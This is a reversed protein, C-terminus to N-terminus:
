RKRFELRSLWLNRDGEPGYLDNVFGITLEHQGAPLQAKLDHPASTSSALEVRGLPKGDLAVEIIPYQGAAPTGHGVFSLVYDGAQAIQVPAAVTGHCGIYLADPDHRFWQIPKVPEFVNADFMTVPGAEGFDAGANALLTAILRALKAANRKATEGSEDLTDVILRGKGAEAVAIAGPETLLTFSGGPAVASKILDHARPVASYSVGRHEALWYLDERALGAAIAPLDDARRLPGQAWKLSAKLGFVGAVSELTKGSPRHLWITAGADAAARLQDATIRSIADGDAVIIRSTASPAQEALRADTRRLWPRLSAAGDALYTVEVAEGKYDGLYDLCNQLIRRAVPETDFKEILQLGCLLLAGKGRRAECLPATALGQANGAVVIPRVGARADWVPEAATVVHHGSAREVLGAKRSARKGKRVPATLDEVLVDSARGDGRWFKLDDDAVGRLAPHRPNQAFTMTSTQTSFSTPLMRSGSQGQGFVLARGGDRVWRLLADRRPSSEGIVPVGNTGALADLAGPAVILVRVDSAEALDTVIRLGALPKPCPKGGTLVAVNAAPKLGARPWFSIARRDEFGDAGAMSTKLILTADTRATVEPATFAFTRTVRDDPKMALSARHGAIRKGNAEISWEFTVTGTRLTNNFLTVTREVRDGAFFRADAERLYAGLPHYAWAHARWLHNSEGLPGGEFMTWPGIGNLGQARYAVIQDRWSAAKGRNRYDGHNIYADDGFWLTHWDPNNSPEWLFEGIYLPKARDWQFVNTPWFFHHIRAHDLWWATDPYLRFQPYEHPYHMGIVDAVGTTDTANLRPDGDSEYIIPRTPDLQKLFVGARAMESEGRTGATCRGGYFENELSWMVVSPNNKLRRWMVALHDRYNQWFREDDVRYSERDNWIAGEPIILLGVEDAVDYFVQRWPQTHTRLAVNNAEKVKQWLATVEDHTRARVPWAPWTATARLTIPVGNLFFRGREVRFERFGFRTRLTDATAGAVDLGSQLHYLNPHEHDWLKPNRWTASVTLNTRLGAALTLEVPKLVVSADEAIANRLTVRAEAASDNALEVDLTLKHDRVSTIITVDNVRVPQVALVTVDDWIGYETFLGGIPGLVNDRPWSRLAHWDTNTPDPLQKDFIGSWDRAGVLLTNPAGFKVADTADVTFMDYGNFCGGVRRGNVFVAANYKVGNFRLLVRQGRWDAPADFDRRLWVAKRNIGNVLGPVESNKWPGLPTQQALDPDAPAAQWTGSLNMEARPSASLAFASFACLLSGGTVIKRFRSAPQSETKPTHTTM